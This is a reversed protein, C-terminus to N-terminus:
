NSGKFLDAPNVFKQPPTLPGRDDPPPAPHEQFSEYIRDLEDDFDKGPGLGGGSEAFGNPSGGEDQSSDLDMEDGADADNSPNGDASQRLLLMESTVKEM